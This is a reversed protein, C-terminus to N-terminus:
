PLEFQCIILAQVRGYKLFAELFSELQLAMTCVIAVLILWGLVRNTLCDLCVM